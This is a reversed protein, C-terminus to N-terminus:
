ENKLEQIEKWLAQSVVLDANMKMDYDTYIGIKGLWKKFKPDIPKDITKDAQWFFRM